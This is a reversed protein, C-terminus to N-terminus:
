SLLSTLLGAQEQILGLADLADKAFFWGGSLHAKKFSTSPHSLDTSRLLERPRRSLDGCVPRKFSLFQNERLEPPRSDLILTGAPRARESSELSSDKRMEALEQHGRANSTQPQM